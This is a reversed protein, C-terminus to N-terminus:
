RLSLSKFYSLRTRKRNPLDSDLPGCLQVGGPPPVGEALFFSDGQRKWNRAAPVAAGGEEAEAEKGM